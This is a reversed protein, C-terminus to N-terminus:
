GFIKLESPFDRQLTKNQNKDGGEVVRSRLNVKKQRTIMMKRM